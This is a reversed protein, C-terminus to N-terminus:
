RAKGACHKCYRLGGGDWSLYGHTGDVFQGCLALTHPSPHVVHQQDTYLLFPPVLHWIQSDYRRYVGYQTGGTSPPAQAPSSPVSDQNM